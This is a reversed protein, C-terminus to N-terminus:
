DIQFQASNARTASISNFQIPNCQIPQAWQTQRRHSEIPRSTAPQGAPRSGPRGDAQQARGCADPRALKAAARLLYAFSRREVLEITQALSSSSSSSTALPRSCNGPRAAAVDPNRIDQSLASLISRKWGVGIDAAQRAPRGLSALLRGPSREAWLRSGREGRWSQEDAEQSRGAPRRPRQLRCCAAREVRLEGSQVRPGNADSREM